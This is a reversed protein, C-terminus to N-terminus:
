YKFFSPFDNMKSKKKWWHLALIHKTNVQDVGSPAAAPSAQIQHKSSLFYIKFNSKKEKIFFEPGVLYIYKFEPRRVEFSSPILCCARHPNGILIKPLCQLARTAALMPEFRLPVYHCPLCLILYRERATAAWATGHLWPYTLAPCLSRPISHVYLSLM